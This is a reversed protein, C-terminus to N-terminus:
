ENAHEYGVARKELQADPQEDVAKSLIGAARGNALAGNSTSLAPPARTPNALAGNSTSFAGNSTASRFLPRTPHPYTCPQLLAAVCFFPLLPIPNPPPSKPECEDAWACRGDNGRGDASAAPGHSAFCFHPASLFPLAKLATKQREFLAMHISFSVACGGCLHMTCKCNYTDVYLIYIYLKIIYMFKLECLVSFYIYLIPVKHSSALWLCPVRRCPRCCHYLNRLYRPSSIDHRLFLTSTSYSNKPV